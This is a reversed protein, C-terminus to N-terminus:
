NRRAHKRMALSLLQMFCNCCNGKRDSVTTNIHYIHRHKMPICFWDSLSRSDIADNRLMASKSHKRHPNHIESIFDFDIFGYDWLPLSFGDRVKNIENLLERKLDRLTANSALTIIFTSTDISECAIKLNVDFVEFILKNEVQFKPPFEEVIEM